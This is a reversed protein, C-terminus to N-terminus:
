GGHRDGHDRLVAGGPDGWRLDGGAGLVAIGDKPAVWVGAGHLSCLVSDVSFVALGVPASLFLRVYDAFKGSQWDPGLPFGIVSFGFAAIPVLVGAYIGCVRGVGSLVPRERVDAGPSAYDLVTQVPLPSGPPIPDSMM